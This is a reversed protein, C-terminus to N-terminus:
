RWDMERLARLGKEITEIRKPFSFRLHDRGMAPDHYFSSAPVTAVGAKEILRRAVARDDDASTRGAFSPITAMVYYAGEPSAAEFGCDQLGSV